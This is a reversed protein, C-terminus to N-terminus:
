KVSFNIGWIGGGKCGRVVELTCFNEAKALRKAQDICLVLDSLFLTLM